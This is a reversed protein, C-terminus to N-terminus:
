RPHPAASAASAAATPAADSSAGVAASTGGGHSIGDSPLATTVPGAGGALRPSTRAPATPRRAIIVTAGRDTMLTQLYDIAATSTTGIMAPEALSSNLDYWKAGIRRVAFWHRGRLVDPLWSSGTRHNVIFGLVDSTPLDLSELSAFDEHLRDRSNHWRLEVGRRALAEVIVNADYDGPLLWHRHGNWRPLWGPAELASARLHLEAALADLEDRSTHPLVGDVLANITHLGCLLWAQREHYPGAAAAAAGGAGAGGAAM